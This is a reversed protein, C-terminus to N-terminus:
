VKHKRRSHKEKSAKNNSNKDKVRKGIPLLTNVMGSMVSKWLLNGFSKYPVREFEIEAVRLKGKKSPNSELLVTNAIWSLGKKKKKKTAFDAELNDYLMTMKGASGSPTGQVSFQMSNLTGGSFNVGTGPYLADNFNAFNAKGVSGTFSYSNNWTTYHLLIDLNLPAVKCVNGKLNIKLDDGLALSDKLSTVNSIEVNLDSIDLTMLDKFNEHKELYTFMGKEILVKEINLPQKLAKLTQNLFQPRKHLNFPKTQDKYIGIIPQEVVVTDLKIIGTRLISDLHFGKLQIADTEFEYVETNYKYTSALKAKDVTPNMKFNSILLSSTKYDYKIKSLVIKYNGDNTKIEQEEFNIILDEKNLEFYNQIIPHADLDLGLIECEEESYSFLTDASQVNIIRFNFDDFVISNFDIKHIGKIFLSDIKKNNEISDSAKKESSKESKYLNLQLGKAIIKRAYVEKNVLIAYIGFGKIKLESLVFESTSAKATHGQKFKEFFLSDPKVRVNKLNLDGAFVNLNIKEVSVTLKGQSNIEELQTNVLNSIVVSLISNISFFLVILIGLIIGWKKTNFKM